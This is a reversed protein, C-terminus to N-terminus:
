KLDILNIVIKSKFHHPLDLTDDVKFEVAPIFAIDWNRLYEKKLVFSYDSLVVDVKKLEDKNWDRFHSRTKAQEQLYTEIDDISKDIYIDETSVSDFTSPYWDWSSLVKYVYPKDFGDLSFDEPLIYTVDYKENKMDLSDAMISMDGASWWNMITNPESLSEVEANQQLDNSEPLASKMLMRVNQDEVEQNESEFSSIDSDKKDIFTDEPLIFFMFSTAVLAWWVFTWIFKIIDFSKVYSSKNEYSNQLNLKLKYKFNEDIKIQPKNEIMLKVIENLNDTKKLSSDSDTLEKVIEDIKQNM